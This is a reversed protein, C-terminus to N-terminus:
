RTLFRKYVRINKQQEAYSTKEGHGSYIEEFAVNELKCLSDYMEKKNGFKLDTRGISREFLVDGPFMIGDIVYVQSCISHGPCYYSDIDFNELKLKTDGELFKFNSFDEIIEGSESYIAQSDLMTKTINIDAYIPCDFAEAYDNAHVSHDYHGHTLLIALVNKGTTADKIKDVSAGSDIILVNGDKEVVFVNADYIEGLIQTIKM